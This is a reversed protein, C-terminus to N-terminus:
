RSDGHSVRRECGWVIAAGVAYAVFDKWDFTTGIITAVIRNQRLGFRDVIQFYQALEVVCAFGFVGAIAEDVRVNWFSRIFCYILIIVLVDGILPRIFWDNIFIAICVEVFFLFITLYLYNRKIKM